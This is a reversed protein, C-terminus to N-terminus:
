RKRIPKVSFLGVQAQNRFLDTFGTDDDWEAGKIVPISSIAHTMTFLKSVPLFFKDDWIKGHEVKMVTFFSVRSVRAVDIMRLDLSKRVRRFERGFQKWPKKKFYLGGDQIAVSSM